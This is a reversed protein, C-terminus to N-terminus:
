PITDTAFLSGFPVHNRQLLAVDYTADVCFALVGRVAFTGDGVAYMEVGPRPPTSGGSVPARLNSSPSSPGFLARRIRRIPSTIASIPTITRRNDPSSLASSSSTWALALARGLKTPAHEVHLSAHTVFVVDGFADDAHASRDRKPVKRMRRVTVCAIEGDRADLALVEDFSLCILPYASVNGTSKGSESLKTYFPSAYARVRATSVLDSRDKASFQSIDVEFVSQACVNLMLTAKWDVRAYEASTPEVAVAASWRRVFVGKGAEAGRMGSADERTSSSTVREDADAHEDEREDEDEDKEDCLRVFHLVDDLDLSGDVDDRYVCTREFAAHWSSM